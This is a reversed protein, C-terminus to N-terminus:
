SRICVRAPLRVRQQVENSFEIDLREEDALEVVLAYTVSQHALKVPPSSGLSTRRARTSRV